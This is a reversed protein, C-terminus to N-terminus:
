LRGTPLTSSRARKRTWRRRMPAPSGPRRRAGCQPKRRRRTASGDGRWGNETLLGTEWWSIDAPLTLRTGMWVTVRWWYRTSPKLAPGKYAVNLSQSAEVKGSDWVDPKDAGLLEPRSAVQVRYATQRAGRAPDALQWSFHPAAGDIGLPTTLNDVRLATPGVAPEAAESLPVMAAVGLVLVLLSRKQAKM